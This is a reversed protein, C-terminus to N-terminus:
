RPLEGRVGSLLQNAFLEFNDKNDKQYRDWRDASWIEIRNHLGIISVEGRLDAFTKHYNALTTAVLQNVTPEAM